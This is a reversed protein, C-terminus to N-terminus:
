NVTNQKELLELENHDTTVAESLVDVIILM